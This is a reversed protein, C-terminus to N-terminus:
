SAANEDQPKTQWQAIYTHLYDTAHSYQAVVLISALVALYSSLLYPISHHSHKLLAM